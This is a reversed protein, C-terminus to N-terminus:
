WGTAGGGPEPEQAQVGEERLELLSWQANPRALSGQYKPESQTLCRVVKATAMRQGGGRWSCSAGGEGETEGAWGKGEPDRSGGWTTTMAAGDCGGLDDPDSWKMAEGFLHHAGVGMYGNYWRATKRWPEERWHHQQPAYDQRHVPTGDARWQELGGTPDSLWRSWGLNEQNKMRWSLRRWRDAPAFSHKRNHCYWDM